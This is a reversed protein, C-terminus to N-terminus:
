KMEFHHKHERKSREELHLNWNYLLLNNYKEFMQIIM